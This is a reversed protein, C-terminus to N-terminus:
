LGEMAISTPRKSNKRLFMGGRQFTSFAADGPLSGAGKGRRTWVEGRKPEKGKRIVAVERILTNGKEEEKLGRRFSGKLSRKKRPPIEGENFLL